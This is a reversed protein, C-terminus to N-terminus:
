LARMENMLRDCARTARVLDDAAVAQASYGAKTKLSLLTKLDNALKPDVQRLLAAAESHNEGRSHEGLRACCIVDSAAIGAHVLLTAVADGVSRDDESYDRTLSAANWFQEAKHKRGAATAATCQVTRAM